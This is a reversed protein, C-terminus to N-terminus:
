ASNPGILHFFNPFYPIMCGKYAKPQNGHLEELDVGDRGVIKTGGLVKVIEFGTAMVIVDAEISQGSRTVLGKETICDIGDTLLSVNTQSLAPYYDNSPTMRRSGAPYDPTVKALLTSDHIAKRRHKEFMSIGLPRLIPSKSKFFFYSLDM